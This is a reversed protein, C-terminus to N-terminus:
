NIIECNRGAGNIWRKLVKADLDQNQREFSELLSSKRCSRKVKGNIEVWWIDEDNIEHSVTLKPPKKVLLRKGM